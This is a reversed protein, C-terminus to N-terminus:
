YACVTREEKEEGGGGKGRGSGGDVKGAESHMSTRANQGGM